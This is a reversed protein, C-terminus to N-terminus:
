ERSERVLELFDELSDDSPWEGALDDLDIVPLVSQLAALEAISPSVLSNARRVAEVPSSESAAVGPLVPRASSYEGGLEDM